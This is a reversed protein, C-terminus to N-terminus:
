TNSHTPFIKVVMKNGEDSLKNKQLLGESESINHSVQMNMPVSPMDRASTKREINVVEVPFNNVINSESVEKRDSSQKIVLRMDILIMDLISKYFNFTPIPTKGGFCGKKQKPKEELGTLFEQTLVSLERVAKENSNHNIKSKCIENLKSRIGELLKIYPTLEHNIRPIRDIAKSLNEISIKWVDQPAEM